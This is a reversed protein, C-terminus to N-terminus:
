NNVELGKMLTSKLLRATSTPYHQEIFNMVSTSPANHLALAAIAAGLLQNPNPDSTVTSPM